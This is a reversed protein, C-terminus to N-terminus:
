YHTAPASKDLQDICFRRSDSHCVDDPVPHAYNEPDAVATKVEAIGSNTVNNTNECKGANASANRNEAREQGTEEAKCTGPPSATEPYEMRTSDNQVKEAHETQKADTTVVTFRHRCPMLSRAADFSARSNRLLREAECTTAATARQDQFLQDSSGQISDVRQLRLGGEHVQRHHESCLCVGNEMSTNGGDAWHVIHHIQLHQTTDCGAFQCHKDRHRIARAMSPPWQRSKRGIDVPEGDRTTLTVTSCDCAIRRATERAIPGAREIIARKKPKIAVESQAAAAESPAADAKKSGADADTGHVVDDSTAAMGLESADVSVVVQFRDATCVDRGAHLLSREAMLVAADARRQHIRSRESESSEGNNAQDSKDTQDSPLRETQADNHLQELCHEISQLFAQASEPPLCLRFETNGNTAERWTLSRAAFQQMARANETSAEQEAEETQWRYERCMREVDSVSADLAAHSLLCENEQDAVRSIQRVKSWGLSGAKFLATLVPLNRIERGVRLYEWALSPSISLESNMWAVCHKCGSDKWGQLDDFRVLLEIQDYLNSCLDRTLTKLHAAISLKKHPLEQAQHHSATDSTASDQAASSIGGIVDGHASPNICAMALRISKGWQEREAQNFSAMGLPPHQRDQTTSDTNHQSADM